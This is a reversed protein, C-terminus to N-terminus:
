AFPDPKVDATFLPGNAANVEALKEPPANLSAAEKGCRPCCGQFQWQDMCNVCSFMDCCAFYGDKEPHIVRQCVWCFVPRAGELIKQECENFDVVVRDDQALARLDFLDSIALVDSM